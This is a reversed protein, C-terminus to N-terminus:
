WEHAVNCIVFAIAAATEAAVIPMREYKPAESSSFVTIRHFGHWRFYEGVLTLHYGAGDPSTEPAMASFFYLILFLGFLLGLARYRPLVELKQFDGRCRWLCAVGGAGVALFVAPYALGFCCLVFVVMSLLASGCVLCIGPDRVAGGVAAAGFGLATAATMVAGFLIALAQM